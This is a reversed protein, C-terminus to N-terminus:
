QNKNQKKTKADKHLSDTSWVSVFVFQKLQKTCPLLRM